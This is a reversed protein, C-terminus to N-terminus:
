EEPYEKWPSLVKDMPQLRPVLLVVPLSACAAKTLGEEPQWGVKKRKYLESLKPVGLFRGYGVRM